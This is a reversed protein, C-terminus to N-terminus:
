IFKSEITCKLCVDVSLYFKRVMYTVTIENVRHYIKCM